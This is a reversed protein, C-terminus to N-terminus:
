DRPSPSTYLLCGIIGGVVGGATGAVSALASAEPSWGGQPISAHEGMVGLDPHAIMVDGLPRGTKNAVEASQFILDIMIQMDDDPIREPADDLGLRDMWILVRSRVYQYLNAGDIYGLPDRQMRRGLRPSYTRYKFHYLAVAADYRQGTFAFPNGVASATLPNGVGDRIHTRGYPDYRYREIVNGANDTLAAVSGLSGHLYHYVGASPGSPVFM